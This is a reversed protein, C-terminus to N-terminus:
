SFFKFNRQFIFLSWSSAGYAMGNHHLFSYRSYIIYITYSLVFPMCYMKCPQFQLWTSLVIARNRAREREDQRFRLTSYCCYEGFFIECFIEDQSCRLYNTINNLRKKENEGCWFHSNGTEVGDEFIAWFLSWHIVIKEQHSYPNNEM